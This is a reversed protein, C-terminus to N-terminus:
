VFERSKSLTFVFKKKLKDRLLYIISYYPILVSLGFLGGIVEDEFLKVGIAAVSVICLLPLIFALWVAQIGMAYRGCIFVEENIEFNGVYDEVEIIKTKSDSSLCASKAHCGSCASQQVIRVYIRPHDIREIIGIHQIGKDM